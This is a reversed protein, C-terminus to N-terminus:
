RQLERKLFDRSATIEEALSLNVMPYNIRRNQELKTALDEKSYCVRDMLQLKSLINKSPRNLLEPEPEASLYYFEKEFLIAICLCHFSDTLVITSNLIKNLWESMSNYYYKVDGHTDIKEYTYINESDLMLKEEVLKLKDLFESDKLIKHYAVGLTKNTTTQPIMKLFFSKDVILSPELVNLVECSVMKSLPEVGYSERIGIASFSGIYRNLLDQLTADPQQTTWDTQGFSAAYAIKKVKKSMFSLFYAPLFEGTASPAWVSDSGVVVVDYDFIGNELDELSRYVISSRPVWESRFEEFVEPNEAFRNRHEVKFAAKSVPKNRKPIFDIHEVDYGMNRIVHSLSAAQLSPGPMWTGYHISLIGVKKM